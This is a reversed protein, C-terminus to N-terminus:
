EKGGDAFSTTVGTPRCVLVYGNGALLRLATGSCEEEELSGGPSLRYVRDTGLLYCDGSDSLAADKLRVSIHTASVPKGSTDLLTVENESEVVNGSSVLLM